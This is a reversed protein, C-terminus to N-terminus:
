GKLARDARLILDDAHAKRLEVAKAKLPGKSEEPCGARNCYADLEDAISLKTPEQYGYTQGLLGQACNTSGLQNSQQRLIAQNFDDNSAM